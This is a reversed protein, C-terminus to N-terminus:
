CFFRMVYWLKGIIFLSTLPTFITVYFHGLDKYKARNKSHTHTHTIYQDGICPGNGRVRTLFSKKIKILSNLQEGENILEELCIM